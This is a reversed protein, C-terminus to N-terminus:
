NINKLSKNNAEESYFDGVCYESGELDDSIYSTTYIIQYDDTPYNQATQIILKQFNQAREKEIGKDEMNDCLIFRPFRMESVELSAFFLSFRATNKLYFNSSASFKKKVDDIYISNDEYNIRLNKAEKFGEERNLDNKLLTIAFDEVKQNIESKLAEHKKEKFEITEKLKKIKKKFDSIENLMLSYKEAIELMTAYQLIIGEIEGKHILLEDIKEDRFSRVDNLSSNVQLQLNKLKVKESEFKAKLLLLKETRKEKLKKSENIQFSIELQMRKAIVSNEKDDIKQKCLKCNENETKQLKSLCEPCYEFPFHNLFKRTLISNKIAKKKKELTEIFFDSDYIELQLSQIRDDLINVNQRITLMEFNLKEFNLKSDARFVVKKKSEKLLVIEKEIENKEFQSNDILTNVFIPDFNRPDDYLRKMGKVQGEVELLKRETEKLTIRDQYLTDDYVGLLLEASTQRTLASDFQEYYFLSNTPSDQDIYMLRLLQHMTINNEGYVIPIDLNEFMMISFSKKNEYANYPYKQWQGDEVVKVADKIQGWYIYMAEKSNDSLYRKITVITGNLEVEAWVESCEKAEDTWNSFVGGLAYFIFHTITSKGSSNAGRIINVGTHFKENYAIKGSNTYIKLRNLRLKNHMM